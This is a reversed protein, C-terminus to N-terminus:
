ADELNIVKKLLEYAQNRKEGKLLCDTIKWFRYEYNCYAPCDKKIDDPCNTIQWCQFINNEFFKYFKKPLKSYDFKTDKVYNDLDNSNYTNWFLVIKDKNEKKQLFDFLGAMAKGTYTTELKFGKEKGELEFIIDVAKQGRFTKVGYGSGLYGKIIEFDHESVKLKPFSKDKRRLYKLGKNANRVLNSPNALFNKYVAVAYVRTKLGLLKCGAVLGAATGTTADAVFIVDPEPIEGSKIQENLEFIAEIF